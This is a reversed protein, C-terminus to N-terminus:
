SRGLRKLSTGVFQYIAWGDHFEVIQAGVSLLMQQPKVLTSWNVDDMIWLGGYAMKPAFARVEASAVSEEHNGDQHLLNISGDRYREVGKLSRERIIRAFPQLSRSELTLNADHLIKEYDFNAWQQSSGSNPDQTGELSSAADYPDFGTIYGAGAVACGLAMALLSRGGFVGIEIGEYPPSDACLLCLRKAKEVSCWGEMKPVSEELFTYADKLLIM